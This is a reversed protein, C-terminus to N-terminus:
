GAIGSKKKACIREPPAQPPLIGGWDTAARWRPSVTDRHAERTM